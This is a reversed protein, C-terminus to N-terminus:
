LQGYKKRKALAKNKVHLDRICKSNIGTNPRLFLGLKIKKKWIPIWM